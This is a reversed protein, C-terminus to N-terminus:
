TGTSGTIQCIAEGAITIFVAKQKENAQDLKVIRLWAKTDHIGDDSFDILTENKPM